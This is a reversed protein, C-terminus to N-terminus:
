RNERPLRFLGLQRTHRPNIPLVHTLAICDGRGEVWLVATHGYLVQARTRTKSVQGDGERLGPWFRVDTGIPYHANWDAARKVERRNPKMHAAGPALQGGDVAM